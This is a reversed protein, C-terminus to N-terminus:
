IGVSEISEHGSLELLKELAQNYKLCNVCYIQFGSPYDNKIIWKYLTNGSKNKEKSIVRLKKTDGERCSLCYGGYHAVVFEKDRLANSDTFDCMQMKCNYCIVQFTDKNVPQNYLHHYLNAPKKVQYYMTLKEYDDEQCITCQNGYAFIVASKRFTYRDRQKKNYEEDNQHRVKDRKKHCISCCYNSIKRDYSLWNSM